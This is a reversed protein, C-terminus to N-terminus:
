MLYEHLRVHVNAVHTEDLCGELERPDSIACCTGPNMSLQFGSQWYMIRTYVLM